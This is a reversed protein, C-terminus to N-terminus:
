KFNDSTIYNHKQFRVTTTKVNSIDTEMNSFDTEMNSIDATISNFEVLNSAINNDLADNVDNVKDTINAQFNVFYIM